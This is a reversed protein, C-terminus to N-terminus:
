ARGGYHGGAAPAAAVGACGPPAGGTPFHDDTERSHAPQGYFLAAEIAGCLINSAVVTAVKEGGYGRAFEIALRGPRLESGSVMAAITDLIHHATEQVVNDHLARNRAEAMYASLKEMVASIAPGSPAAADQAAAWAIRPVAVAASIWGM